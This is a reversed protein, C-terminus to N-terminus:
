SSIKKWAGRYHITKWKDGDKVFVETSHSEMAIPHAGSIVKKAVFTVVARNGTVKAYPQDITYSVLNEGKHLREYRSKIDAIVAAKGVILKKTDENFTIVGDDFYEALADFNGDNILQTLKNLTEIVKASESCAPHPDNCTVACAKGEEASVPLPALLPSLSGAAMISTLALFSLTQSLMGSLSKVSHRM